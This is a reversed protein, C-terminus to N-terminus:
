CTYPLRSARSRQPRASVAICSAYFKNGTPRQHGNQPASQGRNDSLRQSLVASPVALGERVTHKQAKHAHARAHASAPWSVTSYPEAQSELPTLQEEM